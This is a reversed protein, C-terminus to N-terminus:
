IQNIGNKLKIIIITLKQIARFIYKKYIVKRM